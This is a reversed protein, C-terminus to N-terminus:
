FGVFEEAVVVVVVAVLRFVADVDCTINPVPDNPEFLGEVEFVEDDDAAAGEAGLNANLEAVGASAGFVSLVAGDVPVVDVTPESGAKLNVASADLPVVALEVADAGAGDNTDFALSALAGALLALPIKPPAVAPELKGLTAVVDVAAAAAGVAPPNLKAEVTAGALSELLPPKLKVALVSEALLGAGPRNTNPCLLPEDAGAVVVDDNPPKPPNPDVDAAAGLVAAVVVVFLELRNTKPPALLEM